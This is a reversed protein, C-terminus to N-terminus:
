IHTQLQKAQKAEREARIKSNHERIKDLYPKALIPKSFNNKRRPIDSFDIDDDTMNMLAIFSAKIDDREKQTKANALVDDLGMFM